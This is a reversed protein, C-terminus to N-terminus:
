EPRSRAAGLGASAGAGEPRPFTQGSVDISSSRGHYGIPIWQYNPLLPNDPRMMRGVASAHYISTYFDTYDGIKAPVSYQAESQGVLCPRLAAQLSSGELLGAFLARRVANSVSPGQQMLSNLTAQAGARIGEAAPGRFLELAALAALDIIQDGIAVGGRFQEASGGRRFVAFPLNQIPFESDTRNASDLWCLARPDHTEDLFISQNM